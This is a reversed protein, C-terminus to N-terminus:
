YTEFLKTGDDLPSVKIHISEIFDEKLKYFNKAKTVVLDGCTTPIIEGYRFEKKNTLLHNSIVGMEDVSNILKFSESSLKVFEWSLRDNYFNPKINIFHVDFSAKKYLDITNIKGKKLISVNLGLRKVTSEVLTRSKLIEVENDVNSKMGGGLGLDAFASMESLIGGKKDDKVLINTTVIYQPTTYRLYVFAFSLCLFIGIAFWPWYIFYKELTDKLNFDENQHDELITTTNM